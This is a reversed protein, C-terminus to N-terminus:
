EDLELLLAKPATKTAKPEQVRQKKTPTADEYTEVKKVKKYASFDFEAEDVTETGKKMVPDKWTTFHRLPLGDLVFEDRWEFVSPFYAPDVKPNTSSATKSTRDGSGVGYILAFDAAMTEVLFAPADIKRFKYAKTPESSIPFSLLTNEGHDRIFTFTLFNNSTCAKL